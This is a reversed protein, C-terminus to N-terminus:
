AKTGEEVRALDALAEAYQAETMPWYHWDVTDEM